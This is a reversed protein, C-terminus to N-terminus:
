SAADVDGGVFVQANKFPAAEIHQERKLGAQCSAGPAILM